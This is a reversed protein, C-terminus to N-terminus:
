SIRCIGLLCRWSNATKQHLQWFRPARTRRSGNNFVHNARTSKVSRFPDSSAKRSGHAIFLFYRDPDTLPDHQSLYEGDSTTATNSGDISYLSRILGMALGIPENEFVGGDTYIYKGDLPDSGKAFAKRKRDSDRSAYLPRRPDDNDSHRNIQRM